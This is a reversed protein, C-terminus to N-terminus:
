IRLSVPATSALLSSRLPPSGFVSTRVAGISISGRVAIVTVAGHFFSLSTSVPTLQNNAISTSDISGCDCDEDCDRSGVISPLASKASPFSSERHPHDSDRLKSESDGLAREVSEHGSRQGCLYECVLRTTDSALLLVGVALVFAVASQRVKHM